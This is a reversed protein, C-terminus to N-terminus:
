QYKWIFILIIIWPLQKFQSGTKLELGLSNTSTIYYTSNTLYSKPIIPTVM